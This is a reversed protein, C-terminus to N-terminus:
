KKGRKKTTLLYAGALLLGGGIALPLKNNSIFSMLKSKTPETAPEITSATSAAGATKAASATAAPATAAPAKVATKITSVINQLPKIGAATAAAKTQAINGATKIATSVTGAAPIPLVSTVKAAAPAVKAIAGSVKGSGIIKPAAALDKRIYIGGQNTEKRVYNETDNDALQLYM